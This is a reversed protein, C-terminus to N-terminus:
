GKPIHRAEVGYRGLVHLLDAAPVGRNMLSWSTPVAAARAEAPSCRRQLAHCAAALALGGRLRGLAPRVREAFLTQGCPAPAGPDAAGDRGTWGLARAAAVLTGYGRVRDATRTRKETREVLDDWAVANGEAWAEAQAPSGAALAAAEHVAIEKLGAALEPWRVAADAAALAITLWGARGGLGVPVAGHALQVTSGADTPFVRLLRRLEDLRPRDPPMAYEANLRGHAGQGSGHARGRKRSPAQAADLGLRDRLEDLAYVFRGQAFGRPHVLRSLVPERKRHLFGPVRLLQTPLCAAPDAGLRTALQQQIPVLLGPPHQRDLAWVGQFKGPSSEVLLTPPVGLEDLERLIDRMSRGALQPADWDASVRSFGLVRDAKRPADPAFDAVRYFIGAAYRDGRCNM